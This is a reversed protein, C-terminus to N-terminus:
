VRPADEFSPIAFVLRQSKPVWEDWHDLAMLLPVVDSLLDAVSYRLGNPFQITGEEGVQPLHRPPDTMPRLLYTISDESRVLPKFDGLYISLHAGYERSSLSPCREMGLWAPHFFCKLPHCGGGELVRGGLIFMAGLKKSFLTTRAVIEFGLNSRGTQTVSEREVYSIRAGTMEPTRESTSATAAPQPAGMFGNHPPRSASARLSKRSAVRSRKRSKLFTSAAIGVFAIGCVAIGVSKYARTYYYTDNANPYFLIALVLFATGILLAVVVDDANREETCKVIKGLTVLM